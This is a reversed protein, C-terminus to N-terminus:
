IIFSNFYLYLMNKMGKGFYKVKFGFPLSMKGNTSNKDKTLLVCRMQKVIKPWMSCFLGTRRPDASLLIGVM